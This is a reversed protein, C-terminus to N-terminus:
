QFYYDRKSFANNSSDVAVDGWRGTAFHLDYITEEGNENISLYTYSNNGEVINFILKYDNNAAIATDVYVKVDDIKEDVKEAYLTGDENLIQTSFVNPAVKEGEGDVLWGLKIAGSLMNDNITVISNANIEGLVLRIYAVNSRSNLVYTHVGSLDGNPTITIVGLVEKNSDFYVIYPYTCEITVNKIRLVDNYKAPIYGTICHGTASTEAKGSNSWRTGTKFGTGNYINGSVDTSIPIQNIFNNEISVGREIEISLKDLVANDVYQKTEDVLTALSEDTFYKKKNAM